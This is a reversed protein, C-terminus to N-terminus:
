AHAREPSATADHHRTMADLDLSLKHLEQRIEKQEQRYQQLDRALTLLHHRSGV